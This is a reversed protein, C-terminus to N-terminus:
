IVPVYNPDRIVGDVEDFEDGGLENQDFWLIFKAAADL